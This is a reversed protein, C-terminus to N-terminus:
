RKNNSAMMTLTTESQHLLSGTRSTEEGKRSEDAISITTPPSTESEDAAAEQSGIQEPNFPAIGLLANRLAQSTAPSLGEPLKSKTEPDAREETRQNLEDTWRQLSIAAQTLHAVAHALRSMDSKEVQDIEALASCLKEQALRMLGEATAGSGGPLAEARARQQATVLPTEELDRALSMGYRRLSNVSIEHGQRRIWQVLGKYNRFQQEILRRDVTKRLKEPLRMVNSPRGRLVESGAAQQRNRLVVRDNLGRGTRLL